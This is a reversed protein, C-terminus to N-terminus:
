AYAASQTVEIAAMQNHNVVVGLQQKVAQRISTTPLQHSQRFVDIATHELPIAISDNGALTVPGKATIDGTNFTGRATSLTEPFVQTIAVPQDDTNTILIDLDNTHPNHRTSVTFGTHSGVTDTSALDAHSVPTSPMVAATGLGTAATGAMTLLAKLTRRKLHNIM